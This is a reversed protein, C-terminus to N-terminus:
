PYLHCLCCSNSYLALFYLHKCCEKSRIQFQGVGKSLPSKANATKVHFKMGPLPLTQETIKAIEDASKANRIDEDKWPLQIPQPFEIKWWTVCGLKWAFRRPNELRQPATLVWAYIKAWKSCRTMWDDDLQHLQQNDKLDKVNVEVCEKLCVTGYVKGSNVVCILGQRTTHESRIEWSKSGDLIYSLYPEMINLGTSPLGTSPLGDVLPESTSAKEKSAHKKEKKPVQWPRLVEEHDASMLLMFHETSAGASDTLVCNEMRIPGRVSPVTPKVTAQLGATDYIWIQTQLLESAIALDESCCTTRKRVRDVFGECTQEGFRDVLMQKQSDFLELRM